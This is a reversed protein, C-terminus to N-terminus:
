LGELVWKLRAILDAPTRESIFRQREEEEEESADPDYDPNSGKCQWGEIRYVSWGLRRLEADRAADKAKDLHFERGDCEVAVKRVPNGFDVFFRGVPYQPWLPLSNARVDSWFAAEIPTFISAWDAIEYPDDKGWSGFGAEVMKEKVSYNRRYLSFREKWPISSDIRVYGGLEQEKLMWAVVNEYPDIAM